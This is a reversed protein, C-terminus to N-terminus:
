SQNRELRHRMNAGSGSLRPLLWSQFENWVKPLFSSHGWISFEHFKQLSQADIDMDIWETNLSQKPHTWRENWFKVMVLLFDRTLNHSEFYSDRGKLLGVSEIEHFCVVMEVVETKDTRQSKTVLSIHDSHCIWRAPVNSTSPDKPNITPSWRRPNSLVAPSIYHFAYPLGWWTSDM